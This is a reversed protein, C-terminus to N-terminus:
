PLKKLVRLLLFGTVLLAEAGRLAEQAELKVASELSGGFFVVRPKWVGGCAKCPPVVFGDFSRVDLHADGDARIDMVEQPPLFADMWAANM